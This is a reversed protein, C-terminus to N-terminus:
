FSFTYGINLLIPFLSQQYLNTTGDDSTKFFLYYANQRNYANYIGFSWNSIGAKKVKSYNIGFDLRHYDPMRYGNKETYVHVDNYVNRNGVYPDTYNINYLKYKGSPLTISNGTNYVWTGSLSLKESIKYNCVISINHRQDYKFPYEKGNNIGAFKRSNKSLTYGIWGTITGKQKYLLFEIGKIMGKGGTEVKDDWMVSSNYVLIGEKYEILNNIAKTYAELSLEMGHRTTHAFGLAFQKASEQKIGATSPIWIDSPLGANSNTLLHINQTMSCYSAKISLSHLVLYNLIIRPELSPFQAKDTFYYGGRIGANGTLKDGIKFHLETYVCAQDAKNKSIKDPSRLLTDNNNINLRQSFSVHGPIFFHKCYYGGIHFNIKHLPIETDIKVFLDNVESLIQFEDMLESKDALDTLSNFNYSKYLYKSYAITLNNFVKDRFIHLWRLSAISNGWILNSLASSKLNENSTKIEDEKYFYKDRGQYASVFLRNSQSIKYNAKLNIDYFFYGQKHRNSVLFNYLSSYLDINSRRISFAFSSRDKKIPGEVFVKSLFLSVGIDGNYSYTNGEKNRVDVVSSLRGGYRAPFGGKYLDISKVMSPDFVSFMGGLHSVNYLPVDDLLFLNQDPSGGRIFLGNNGEAGGQIGPMLQYTRLIDPEGTISPLRKIESISISIRGMESREEISKSVSSSITVENLLTGPILRINIITDSVPTLIVSESMYGIYSFKLNYSGYPRLQISYFGFKNTTTGLFSVTDFINAGILVEGSNHDIVYGSVVFKQSHAQWTVIIFLLFINISTRLM